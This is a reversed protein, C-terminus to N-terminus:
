GENLVQEHVIYPVVTMFIVGNTLDMPPLTPKYPSLGTM